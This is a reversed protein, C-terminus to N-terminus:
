LQAVCLALRDLLPQQEQRIFIAADALKYWAGRDIEPIVIRQKSRPPWEVECTNSVLEAPDCDGEFAWAAVIKRSKQQVSGLEVFPESVTFGTEEQFERTAASLPDEDSEYEGKPLTWAGKNKKSWYPGGPHVLFVQLEGDRIRYMILGASRKPMVRM